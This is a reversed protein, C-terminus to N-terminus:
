ACFLRGNPISATLEFGTERPWSHVLAERAYWERLASDELKTILTVIHFWPLQDASQQGIVRGPM